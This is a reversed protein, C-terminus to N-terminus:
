RKGYARIEQRTMDRASILLAQAPPKYIFVALLYRGADTQGFALYVDEGARQGREGLRVHPEGLLLEEVEYPQVHHKRIIKEVIQDLWIVDTIIIMAM